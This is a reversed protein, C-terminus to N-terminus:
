HRNKKQEIITNLAKQFEPSDLFQYISFGPKKKNETIRIIKFGQKQLARALWSMYVTYLM